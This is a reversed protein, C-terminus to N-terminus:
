DFVYHYSLYSERYFWLGNILDFKSVENHINIRNKHLYYANFEVSDFSSEVIELGLWDTKDLEFIPMGKSTRNLYEIEGSVFASYRSKMLELASSAVRQLSILRYCCELYSM